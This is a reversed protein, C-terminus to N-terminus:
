QIEDWAFNDEGLAINLMGEAPLVDVPLGAKWLAVSLLMERRGHLDFAERAISVELIKGFAASVEAEPQLLCVGAREVAIRTIKGAEAKLTIRMERADWLTLRVQFEQMDALAEPLPDVRLYFHQEGFGYHLDGFIHSRGHMSGSKRDTAYLGAGLWEFYSSERGDM